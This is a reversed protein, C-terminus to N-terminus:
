RTCPQMDGSAFLKSLTAVLSSPVHTTEEGGGDGGGGVIGGGGEGGGGEGGGGDGGGGDGGGGPGEAPFRM